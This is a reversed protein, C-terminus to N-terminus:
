TGSTSQLMEVLDTGENLPGLPLAGLRLLMRNGDPVRDADRVFLPVWHEKLVEMAGSWTGGKGAKTSVVAGCDALCYILKNSSTAGWVRFTADPPEASILTLKGALVNERMERERLSKELSDALVCVARGGSKLCGLLSIRGLDQSFGSVMVRGAQACHRGLQDAYTSGAPDSDGGAIALWGAALLDPDGAGFLVPPLLDPALRQRLKAPFSADAQCRVWIGQNTLRQLEFALAGGRELLRALRTTQDDPLSIAKQLENLNCLLLEAPRTLGVSQMAAALDSWELATLPKLDGAKTAPLAVSTCLLLLAKADESVLYDIM